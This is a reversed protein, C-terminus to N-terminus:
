RGLTPAGREEYRPHSRVRPRRNETVKYPLKKHNHSFPESDTAADSSFVGAATKTLTSTASVDNCEDTPPPQNSSQIMLIPYITPPLRATHPSHVDSTPHHHCNGMFTLIMKVLVELKKSNLPITLYLNRVSCKAHM